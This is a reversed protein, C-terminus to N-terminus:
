RIQWSVTVFDGMDQYVRVAETGGEALTLAAAQVFPLPIQTEGTLKYQRLQINAHTLTGGTITFEAADGWAYCVQMGDIFYAFKITYIDNQEDYAAGTLRIESDGMSDAALEVLTRYMKDVAEPLASIGHAANDPFAAEAEYEYSIRGDGSVRLTRDGDLYVATGNSESYSTATIANMGFYQLLTESPEVTDVGSASIAWVEKAGPLIMVDPDLGATEEREFAFWAANSQYAAIRSEVSSRDLATTCRYIQGDQESIYYLRVGAEEVSLFLRRANYGLTSNPVSIGQWAALCVLSEPTIFDFFVGKRSLAEEWVQRTVTEPTGATGLAEGLYASFRDYLNDVESSYMAAYRTGPEPSVAMVQPRAAVAYKKGSSSAPTSDAGNLLDAAWLKLNSIDSERLIGTQASLFCASFFLLLILVTKGREILRKKHEKFWASIRVTRSVVGNKWDSM